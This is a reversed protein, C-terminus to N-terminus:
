PHFLEGHRHLRIAAKRLGGAGDVEHSLNLRLKKGPRHARGRGKRSCCTTGHGLEPHCGARESLGSVLRRCM